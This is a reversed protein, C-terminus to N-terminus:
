DFEGIYYTNLKTRGASPGTAPMTPIFAQAFRLITYGAELVASALPVTSNRGCLRLCRRKGSFSSSSAISLRCPMAPPSTAANPRPPNAHSVKVFERAIRDALHPKAVAIEAAGPIADAAGIM